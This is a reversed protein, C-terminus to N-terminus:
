QREEIVSAGVAQVFIGLQEDTCAPPTPVACGPALIFSTRGGAELAAQAQRLLEDPKAEGFGIENVGCMLCKQTRLRMERIDPNGPAHDSWSYIAYGELPLVDRTYIGCGHHHVVNLPLSRAADLVAQERGLFFDRHVAETLTDSAAGQIALYIGDVGIETLRSVYSCISQTIADLGAEVEERDRQLHEAVRRGSIKEATAYVGFVTPIVPVDEDRGNLIIRLTDIQQGFQGSSGDLVDLRRWDAPEYVAPLDAPMDYPADHMVKLLDPAFRRYFDLTAAALGPGAPPDRRFHYWLSYPVRDPSRGEVAALVRERKTM